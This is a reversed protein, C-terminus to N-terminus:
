DVRDRRRLELRLLSSQVRDLCALLKELGLFHISGVGCHLCNGILDVGTVNDELITVSTMIQEHTLAGLFDVVLAEIAELLDWEPVLADCARPLAADCVAEITAPAKVRVHKVNSAHTWSFVRKLTLLLPAQSALPAELLIPKHTPTKVAIVAETGPAASDLWLVKVSPHSACM